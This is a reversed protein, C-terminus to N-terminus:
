WTKAHRAVSVTGSLTGLKGKTFGGLYLRQRIAVECRCANCRGGQKNEAESTRGLHVDLETNLMSELATKMLTRMADNLEELTTAQGAFEKALADAKKTLMADM